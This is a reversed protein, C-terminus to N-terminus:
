TAGTAVITTEEVGYKEMLKSFNFRPALVGINGTITTPQAFIYDAGCAAYYGGSTAMSGM